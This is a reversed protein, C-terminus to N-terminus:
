HYPVNEVYFWDIIYYFLYRIHLVSVGLILGVIGGSEALLSLEQYLIYETSLKIDRRFYFNAKTSSTQLEEVAPGLYVNTLQCSDQCIDEQNRRNKEYVNRAVKAQSLDKCIESKNAQWPVTCGIEELMKNSLQEYICNDYSGEPYANTCTGFDPLLQVTEHTLAMKVHRNQLIRVRSRSNPSLFQGPHHIFVDVAEKVNVIVELPGVRHVCKPMIISYCNGNFYYERALFVKKEEGCPNRNSKPDFTVKESGNIYRDLYVEVTGIIEELSFTSDNYVEEPNKTNGNRSTWISEQTYDSISQLGYSRLVNEKYGSVPCFSLDPFPVESIHKYLDSTGTLKNQYRQYCDWCKLGVIGTGFIGLVFFLILKLIARNKIKCCYRSPRM